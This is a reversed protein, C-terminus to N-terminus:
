KHDEPVSVIADERDGDPDLAKAIDLYYWRQLKKGRPDCTEVVQGSMLSQFLSTARQQGDLLLEDPVYATPIRVGSIPQPAFTASDGTQLTMLVGVPYGLSISALLSSIHPDDWKWERQFDPLQMKGDAVLRLLDALNIDPSDFPM